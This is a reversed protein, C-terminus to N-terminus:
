RHRPAGRDDHEGKQDRDPQEHTEHKSTAETEKSLEIAQRIFNYMGGVLGIAACILTGRSGTGYHRDIWYGALTLGCIAGAFETGMGAYRRWSPFSPDKREPTPPESSV